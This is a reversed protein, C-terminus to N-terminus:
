HSITVSPDLVRLGEALTTSGTRDIDERTYTHGFATCANAPVKMMTGTQAVCGAPPKVAAQASKDPAPKVLGCGGLLLALCAGTILSKLMAIVENL